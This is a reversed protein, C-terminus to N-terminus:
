YIKGFVGAINVIILAYLPPALDIFSISDAPYARCAISILEVVKFGRVNVVLGIIFESFIFKIKIIISVIM